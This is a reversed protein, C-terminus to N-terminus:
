DRTIYDVFKFAQSINDHFTGAFYDTYIDDKLNARKTYFNTAYDSSGNKAFSVEYGKYLYTYFMGDMKPEQGTVKNAKKITNTLTAM